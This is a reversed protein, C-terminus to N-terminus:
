NCTFFNGKGSAASEWPYQYGKKGNHKANEAAAVRTRNRTELLIRALEPYLMLISPYMWTEQDWFVHGLYDQPFIQFAIVPQM